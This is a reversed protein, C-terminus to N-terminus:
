NFSHLFSPVFSLLFSSICKLDMLGGLWLLEPSPFSAICSTVPIRDGRRQCKCVSQLPFHIDSLALTHYRCRSTISKHNTVVKLVTVALAFSSSSVNSWKAVMTLMRIKEM